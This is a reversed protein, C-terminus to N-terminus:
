SKVDQNIETDDIRTIENVLLNYYIEQKEEIRSLLETCNEVQEDLLYDHSENLFTRVNYAENIYKKWLQMYNDVYKYDIMKRHGRYM